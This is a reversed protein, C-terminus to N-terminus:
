EQALVSRSVCGDNAQSVTAAFDALYTRKHRPRKVQFDAKRAAMVEDNVDVRVEGELLDFSISDGDHVLGIPGGVVAEPACHVGIAGHSVGSVRTDSILAVKGDLEPVALISTAILVEPMGSAVPGLNRLVVVSGPRIRKDQVAAVVDNSDDFCVAKGEFKTDAMSSVKFVMGDPALNGFCIQMDAFDKFPKDLPAILEQDVPVEMQDALNEAVTKGSVTLCDGDLFGGRLLHALFLPTGGLHHLDVMTLKGRPAFNCLVPTQRLIGQVDALTFEVRAERALALLHLIGNTSGGAAAIATVANKFAAKTLIDRPRIGKELLVRIAEGV